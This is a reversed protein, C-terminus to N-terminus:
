SDEVILLFLFFVGCVRSYREKRSDRGDVAAELESVGRGRGQAEPTMFCGAHESDIGASSVFDVAGADQIQTGPVVSPDIGRYAQLDRHPALDRDRVESTVPSRM